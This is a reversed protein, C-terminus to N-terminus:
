ILEGPGPGSVALDTVIIVIRVARFNNYDNVIYIHEGIHTHTHIYIHTYTCTYIHIHIHIYTYTHIHM